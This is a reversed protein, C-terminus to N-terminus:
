CLQGNHYVMLPTCEKPFSFYQEDTLKVKTYSSTLSVLAMALAINCNLLTLEEVKVTKSDKTM